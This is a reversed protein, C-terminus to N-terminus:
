KKFDSKTLNIEELTSYPDAFNAYKTDYKSASQRYPFFIMWFDEVSM